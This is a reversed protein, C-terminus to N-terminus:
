LGNNVPLKSKLLSKCFLEELANPSQFTGIELYVECIANPTRLWIQVWTSLVREEIKYREIEEFPVLLKRIYSIVMFNDYMRVSALPYRWRMTGTVLACQFSMIPTLRREKPLRQTRVIIIVIIGVVACTAGL